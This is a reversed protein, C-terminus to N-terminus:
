LCLIFNLSFLSYVRTNPGQTSKKLLPNHCLLQKSGPWPPSQSYHFSTSFTNFLRCLDKWCSLSMTLFTNQSLLRLHILNSSINNIITLSLGNYYSPLSTVFTQVEWQHTHSFVSLFSIQNWFTSFYICIYIFGPSMLHPVLQYLSFILYSKSNTVYMDSWNPLPM